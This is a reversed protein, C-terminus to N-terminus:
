VHIPAWTLNQSAPTRTQQTLLFKPTKSEPIKTQNPKKIPCSYQTQISTIM